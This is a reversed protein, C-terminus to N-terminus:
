YFPVNTKGQRSWHLGDQSQWITSTGETVVLKFAQAEPDWAPASRTQLSAEGESRSPKIVAGKKDPKHMTRTLNNLEAIVYNDLFLQREGTPVVVEEQQALDGRWALEEASLPHQGSRLCGGFVCLCLIVVVKLWKM